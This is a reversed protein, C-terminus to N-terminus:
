RQTLHAIFMKVQCCQATNKYCIPLERLILITSQWIQHSYPASVTCQIMTILIKHM